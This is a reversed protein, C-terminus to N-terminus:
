GSQGNAWTPVDDLIGLIEINRARLASVIADHTTFVWQDNSPEIMYWRFDMRVIQAGSAEIKAIVANLDAPPEWALDEVVGFRRGSGTGSSSITAPILALAVCLVFAM